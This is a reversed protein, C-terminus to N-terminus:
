ELGLFSRGIKSGVFMSLGGLVQAGYVWDLHKWNQCIYGINAAIFVLTGFWFLYTYNMRNQPPIFFQFTYDLHSVYQERM